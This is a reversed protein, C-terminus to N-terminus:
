FANLQDIKQQLQDIEAQMAAMQAPAPPPVAAMMNKLRDQVWKYMGIFSETMWKPVGPPNGKDGGEIRKILDDVLQRAQDKDLSCFGGLRPQFDPLGPWGFRVHFSQSEDDKGV